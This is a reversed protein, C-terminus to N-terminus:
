QRSFYGVSLHHHKINTFVNKTQFSPCIHPELATWNMMRHAGNGATQTQILSEKRNMMNM